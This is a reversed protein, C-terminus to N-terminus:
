ARAPGGAPLARTARHALAQGVLRTMAWVGPERAAVLGGGLWDTRAQARRLKGSSTKPLHGPGLLEVRDPLLGLGAAVARGIAAALEPYRAVPERTEALVVVAETGRAADAVGFAVVCGSRVGAVQAALRELDHPAYNRGGKLIMDKVRGVIFLDGDAQYGLDGTRLWGDVITRATEAPDDLYGAMLSPGAIRIEGVQRAPLTAGAPDTIRVAYGTLPPGVSAFARTAELPPRAVGEAELAQPDVVDVRAPRDAPSFAAGVALEALGYIPRIAGPDFGYPALRAAFQDHTAPLCPEAGNYALRWSSLDLGALESDQLRNAVLQYAFNPATSITARHRHIAWLWRKADLLFAQPSMLVLQLDLFLPLLMMGILGMDHYLPLWSVVAEGARPRVAMHLAALNELVARHTLVVGKPAQTSGSTFQILAQTAPDIAVPVFAEALGMLAEALEVAARGGAQFVAAEVALRARPFTVVLRPAVRRTMAALGRQYDELGKARAPPYFPVVTAGALLVGFFTELFALGTPLGVMVRDGPRVGRAQLAAARRLAGALLADHTLPSEQGHDDMLHLFVPPTHHAARHTLIAGIHEGLHNWSVLPSEM